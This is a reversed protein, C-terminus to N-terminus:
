FSVNRKMKTRPFGYFRMKIYIRARCPRLYSIEYMKAIFFQRLQVVSRLKCLEYFFHINNLIKCSSVGVTNLSDINIIYKHFTYFIFM